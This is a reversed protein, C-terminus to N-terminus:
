DVVHAHKLGLLSGLSDSIGTQFRGDPGQRLRPFASAYPTGHTSLSGCSLRRGTLGLDAVLPKLRDPHAAARGGTRPAGGHTEKNM